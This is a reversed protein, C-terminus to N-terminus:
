RQLLKLKLKLIKDRIHKRGDAIGRKIGVQPVLVLNEHFKM